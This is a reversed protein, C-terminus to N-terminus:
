QIPINRLERRAAKHAPVTEEVLAWFAPSHNMEKLHCLEHAVVYDQLAPPLFLIRYNFNLNGLESCSGWRSRSNKIFIKKLPLGYHANLAAIREHVLLRAAEKCASFRRAGAASAPRRRRRYVIRYRFM